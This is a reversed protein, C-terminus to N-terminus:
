RSIWNVFVSPTSPAIPTSIVFPSDASASNRSFPM